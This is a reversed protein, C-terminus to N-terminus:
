KSTPRMRLRKGETKNQSSNQICKEYEGDMSNAKDM